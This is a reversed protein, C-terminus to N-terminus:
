QLKGALKNCEPHIPTFKRCAFSEEGLGEHPLPLLFSWFLHICPEVKIDNKTKSNEKMKDEHIVRIIKKYAHWEYRRFLLM